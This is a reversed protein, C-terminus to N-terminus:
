RALRAAISTLRLKLSVLALSVRSFSSRGHLLSYSEASRSLYAVPGSDFPERTRALASDVRRTSCPQPKSGRYAGPHVVARAACPRAAM